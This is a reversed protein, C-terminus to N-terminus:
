DDPRGSDWVRTVGVLADEEFNLRYVDPFSLERWFEYGYAPDFGNVILAMLNGHTAVVVHQGRHEALIRRVVALGRAQAAANAEGGEVETGPSRWTREVLGLFAAPAVVPLERERLDAVFDMSMDLREALPAVTEVARRHPSSYIAAIPQSSLREAVIRADQYGAPSLPRDEDDKRFDAHAHRVLFLTTLPMLTPSAAHVMFVKM